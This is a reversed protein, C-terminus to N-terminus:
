ASHSVLVRLFRGSLPAEVSGGSKEPPIASSHSLICRKIGAEVSGGSKEPPIDLLDLSWGSSGDHKLPAAQNRLRFTHECTLTHAEISQKM